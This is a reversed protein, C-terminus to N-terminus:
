GRRPILSWADFSGQGSRVDRSAIEANQCVSRLGAIGRVVPVSPASWLARRLHITDWAEPPYCWAHTRQVYKRCAISPCWGNKPKIHDFSEEVRLPLTVDKGQSSLRM